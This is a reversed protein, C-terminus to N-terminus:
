KEAKETEPDHWQLGRAKYLPIWHSDYFDYGCGDIGFIYGYDEQEYIRFGCNAMIRLGDKELWEDDLSDGFAWMTGCMPLYGNREVDFDVESLAVTEGSDLKVDYASEDDKNRGVIEGYEGDYAGCYIYVRDGGSPPTVEIVDEDYSDMLKGVVNLPIRSFERVWEYAAEKITMGKRKM